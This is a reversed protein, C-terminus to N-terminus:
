LDFGRLPYAALPEYYAGTHGLHSRFLIFNDILLPPHSFDGNRELFSGLDNIKIQKIRALTVHPKFKRGELKVGARRLASGVREQLENLAHSSETGVWLARPKNAKGFYGVGTLHLDFAPFDIHSLEADIEEAMDRDVDGIFHLTLHFNEKSIWRAGDIGACLGGLRVRVEEPLPLGAFVRM